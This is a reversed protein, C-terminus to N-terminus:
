KKILEIKEIVIDELPKDSQNTKTSEIQSVVEMGSTVEGFLSYLPPLSVGSEGSIIFFQSGNTDPGSNAMALSGLKYEGANPLEDKFKYGPGGTSTGTPDGTQIVFGKIVRHFTVGDYFGKDALTCFNAVTLPAKEPYFKVEISGKNTIIKAGTCSQAFDLNIEKPAQEMYKKNYNNDNSCGNLIFFGMFTLLIFKNM